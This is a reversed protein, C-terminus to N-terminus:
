VPPSRAAPQPASVPFLAVPVPFVLTFEVGNPVVALTTQLVGGAQSHVIQAVSCNPEKNDLAHHTEHLSLWPLIWLLMAIICGAAVSNLGLRNGTPRGRMHTWTFRLLLWTAIWLLVLGVAAIVVAGELHVHPAFAATSIAGFTDADHGFAMSSGMSGLAALLLPIRLVKVFM